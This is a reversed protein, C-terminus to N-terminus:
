GEILALKMDLNEINHILSLELWDLSKGKEANKGEKKQAKNESKKEEKKEKKKKKKKDKKENSKKEDKCKRSLLKQRFFFIDRNHLRNKSVFNIKMMMMMTMIMMMM